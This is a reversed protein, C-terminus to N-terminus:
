VLSLGSFHPLVCSVVAAIMSHEKNTNVDAELDEKTIHLSPYIFPISMTPPLLKQLATVFIIYLLATHRAFLFTHIYFSM